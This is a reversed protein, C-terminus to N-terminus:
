VKRKNNKKITKPCMGNQDIVTQILYQGTCESDNKVIDRKQNWDLIDTSTEMLAIAEQKKM